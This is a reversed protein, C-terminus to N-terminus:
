GAFDQVLVSKEAFFGVEASIVEFERPPQALKAVLQFDNRADEHVMDATGAKRTQRRQFFSLANASAVFGQNPPQHGVVSGAFHRTRILKEAAIDEGLREPASPQM